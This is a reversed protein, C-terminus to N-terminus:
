NSSKRYSPTIDMKAIRDNDLLRKHVETLFEVTEETTANSSIYIRGQEDELIDVKRTRSFM